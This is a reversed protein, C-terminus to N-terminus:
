DMVPPNLFKTLIHTSPDILPKGNAFFSFLSLVQTSALKLLTQPFNM